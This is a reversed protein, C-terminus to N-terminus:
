VNVPLDYPVVPVRQDAMSYPNSWTGVRKESHDRVNVHHHQTTGAPPAGRMRQTSELRRDHERHPSVAYRVGQPPPDAARKVVKVSTKQKAKILARIDPRTFSAGPAAGAGPTLVGTPSGPPTARRVPAQQPAPTGPREDVLNMGIDGLDLAGEDAAAPRGRAASGPRGGPGPSAAAARGRAASRQLSQSVHPDQMALAVGGYPQCEEEDTFFNCTRKKNLGGLTQWYHTDKEAATRVSAGGPTGGRAAPDSGCSTGLDAPSRRLSAVSGAGGVKRHQADSTSYLKNMKIKQTASLKGQLGQLLINKAVLNVPKKAHRKATAAGRTAMHDAYYDGRILRNMLPESMGTNNGVSVEGPTTLLQRYQNRTARASPDAFWKKHFKEEYLQELKKKAHRRKANRLSMDLNATDVSLEM